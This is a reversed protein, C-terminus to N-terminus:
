SNNIQVFELEQFGMKFSIFYFLPGIQFSLIWFSKLNKYNLFGLLIPWFTGFFNFGHFDLFKAWYTTWVRWVTSDLRGWGIVQSPSDSGYKPHTRTLIGAVRGLRASHLNPGFGPRGSRHIAKTKAVVEINLPHTHM